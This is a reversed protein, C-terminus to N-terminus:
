KVKNETFEKIGLREAFEELDGEVFENSKALKSTFEVSATNQKEDSSHNKLAPEESTYLFNSYLLSYLYGYVFNHVLFLMLKLHTTRCKSM